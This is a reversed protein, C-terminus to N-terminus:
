YKKKKLIFHTVIREFNWNGKSAVESSCVLVWKKKSLYNLVDTTSTFILKGGNEDILTNDPTIVKGNGFDIFVNVNYSDQLNSMVKSSTMVDSYIYTATDITNVQSYSVLTFLLFILFFFYKKM